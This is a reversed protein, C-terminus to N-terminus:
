FLQAFLQKLTVYYKYGKDTIVLFYITFYDRKIKYTFDDSIEVDNQLLSYM